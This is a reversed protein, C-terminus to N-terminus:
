IGANSASVPSTGIEVLHDYKFRDENMLNYHNLAADGGRGEGDM